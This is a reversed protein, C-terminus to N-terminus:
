SVLMETGSNFPVKCTWYTNGIGSDLPFKGEPDSGGDVKIRSKWLDAAIKGKGELWGLM